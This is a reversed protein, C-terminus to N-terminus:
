DRAQRGAAKGQMYFHVSSPDLGMWRAIQSNKFGDNALRVAVRRRAMAVPHRRTRSLLEDVSIGARTAEEQVYAQVRPTM